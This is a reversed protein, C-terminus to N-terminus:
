HRRFILVYLLVAISNFLTLIAVKGLFERMGNPMAAFPANLVELTRVYIPLPSSDERPTASENGLLADVESESTAAGLQAITTTAAPAEPKPSEIEKLLADLQDGIKDVTEISSAGANVPGETSSPAPAAEAQTIPAPTISTAGLGDETEALLRDIEEGALQALLDDASVATAPAPENPDPLTDPAAGAQGM